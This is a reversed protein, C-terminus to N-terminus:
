SFNTLYLKKNNLENNRIFVYDHDHHELNVTNIYTEVIITMQHTYTWVYEEIILNSVTRDSILMNDRYYYDVKIDNPMIRESIFNKKEIDGYKMDNIRYQISNIEHNVNKYKMTHYSLMLYDEIISVIGEERIFHTLFLKIGNDM